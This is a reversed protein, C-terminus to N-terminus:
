TYITVNTEVSFYAREGFRQRKNSQKDNSFFNGTEIQFFGM